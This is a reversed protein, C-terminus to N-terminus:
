HGKKKEAQELKHIRADLNFILSILSSNMNQMKLHLDMADSGPLPPKPMPPISVSPKRRLFRLPLFM